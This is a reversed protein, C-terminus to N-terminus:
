REPVAPILFPLGSWGDLDRVPDQFSDYLGSGAHGRKYVYNGQIAELARVAQENVVYELHLTDGCHWATFTVEPKYPFQEPWNLCDLVQKESRRHFPITM